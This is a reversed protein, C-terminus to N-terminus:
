SSSNQYREQRQAATLGDNGKAPQGRGAARKIAKARDSYQVETKLAEPFICILRFISGQAEPPSSTHM